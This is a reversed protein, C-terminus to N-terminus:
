NVCAQQCHLPHEATAQRESSMGAAQEQPHRQLGFSVAASTLFDPLFDPVRVEDVLTCFDLLSVSGTGFWFIEM